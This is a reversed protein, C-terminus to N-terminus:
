RCAQTRRQSNKPENSAKIKKITQKNEHLEARLEREPKIAARLETILEVCALHSKILSGLCAELERLVREAEAYQQDHNSIEYLALHRASVKFALSAGNCM